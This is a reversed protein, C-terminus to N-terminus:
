SFARILVDPYLRCGTIGATCQTGRRDRPVFQAFPRTVDVSSVSHPPRIKPRTEFGGSYLCLQIRKVGGIDPQIVIFQERLECVDKGLLVNYTPELPPHLKAGARQT